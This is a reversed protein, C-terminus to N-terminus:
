FVFLDRIRDRWGNPTTIVLRWQETTLSQDIFEHCHLRGGFVAHMHQVSEAPASLGRNRQLDGVADLIKAYLNPPHRGGMSIPDRHPHKSKTSPEPEAIRLDPLPVYRVEHPLQKGITLM